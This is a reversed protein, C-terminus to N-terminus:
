EEDLKFALFTPNGRRQVLIPISKDRPLDALLSEFQEVDTIKRNNLQLIVDGPRIGARSAPGEGVSQVLIGHDEIQLQEKQDEDPDAVVINLPNVATKESPTQRGRDATLEEPLEDITVTITRSKGSRIVEVPVKKGIEANGVMPPLESSTNVTRGNFRTIIDGVEFDSREAPSDPLVRAVLAGHPIEMNFSEALDRTVDQIIVGLWGRSVYGKERIQSYVNTVVNIPVAFSLGMYGGNRSYIQSNVGVVEGKLNFLPGGSNGPNIAVDTQIFPVYSDSPLSRGKASVIGQTVSHEFGFPSGIALVWEGVNLKDSDGLKLVPLKDADIKLVAIDSRADKGVLEAIFERRDNLRVIIEDADSVVHNNTIVFGDDSIIFGSGLSSREGPPAGGEPIQGFFREFFDQFPSNEPIQPLGFRRTGAEGKLSTSINVVAASNKEILSTFDPLSQACAAQAQLLLLIASLALIKLSGAFNDKNIM